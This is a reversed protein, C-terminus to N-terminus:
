IGHAHMWNGLADAVGAVCNIQLWHNGPLTLATSDRWLTQNPDPRGASEDAQLILVPAQVCAALGTLDEAFAPEIVDIAKQRTLRPVVRGGQEITVARRFAAEVWTSWPTYQPLERVAAIATALDPWPGYEGAFLRDATEGARRLEVSQAPVSDVLVLGRVACERTNTAAAAAAIAVVGGWSHGVFLVGERCHPAVLRVIQAGLRAVGRGETPAASGGHDPLDLALLSRGVLAEALGTWVLANGGLGHLLVLTPGSGPWAIAALPGSGSAVDHLSLARATRPGAGSVSRREDGM